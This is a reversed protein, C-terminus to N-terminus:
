DLHSCFFTHTWNSRTRFLVIVTGPWHRVKWCALCHEAKIETGWNQLLKELAIPWVISVCKQGLDYPYFDLKLTVWIKLRKRKKTSVFYVACYKRIMKCWSNCILKLVGHKRRSWSLLAWATGPWPDCCSCSDKWQVQGLIKSGEFSVPIDM